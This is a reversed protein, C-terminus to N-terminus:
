QRLLISDLQEPRETLHEHRNLAESRERLRTDAAAMNEQLLSLAKKEDAVWAPTHALLESLRGESLDSHALLWDAIIKQGRSIDRQGAALNQQLQAVSGLLNERM